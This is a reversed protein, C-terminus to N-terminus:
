AAAAGAAAGVVAATAAVWEVTRGGAVAELEADSLEHGFNVGAAAVDEPRVDGFGAETIIAKKADLTPAGEVRTRFDEDSAMRDLLQRANNTSM